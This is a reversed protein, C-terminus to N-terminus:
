PQYALARRIAGNSMTLTRYCQFGYLCLGAMRYPGSLGKKPPAGVGKGESFWFLGGVVAPLRDRLSPILDSTAPFRATCPPALFV